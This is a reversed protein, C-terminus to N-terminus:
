NAKPGKAKPQADEASALLRRVGKGKTGDKGAAAQAGAAAGAENIAAKPDKPAAAGAKADKAGKQGSLQGPLKTKFQPKRWWKKDQKKPPPPSLKKDVKKEEEEDDEDEDEDEDSDEPKVEVYKRVRTTIKNCLPKIPECVTFGRDECLQEAQEGGRAM